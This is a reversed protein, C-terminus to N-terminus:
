VGQKKKRDFLISCPLSVYRSGGMNHYDVKNRNYCSVASMDVNQIKIEWSIVSGTVAGRGARVAASV